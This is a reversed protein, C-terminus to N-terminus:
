APNTIDQSTATRLPISEASCGSEGGRAGLEQRIFQAYKTAM